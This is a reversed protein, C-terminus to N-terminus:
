ERLCEKGGGTEKLAQLFRDTIGNKTLRVTSKMAKETVDRNGDLEKWLEDPISSPYEPEDAIAQLALIKVQKKAEKLKDEIVGVAMCVLIEKEAERWIKKAEETDPILALIENDARCRYYDRMQEQLGDWSSKLKGYLAIAIKERLEPRDLRKQKPKYLPIVEEPHETGKVMLTNNQEYHQKAKALQAELLYKEKEFSPHAKHTWSLRVAEAKAVKIEEDTLLLEDQESM